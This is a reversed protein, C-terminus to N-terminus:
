IIFDQELKEADHYDLISIPLNLNKEEHTYVWMYIFVSDPEM